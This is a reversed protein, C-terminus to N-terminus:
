AEDILHWNTPRFLKLHEKFTQWYAATKEKLEQGGRGLVTAVRMLPVRNLYFLCMLVNAAVM